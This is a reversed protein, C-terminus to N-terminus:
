VLARGQWVRGQGLEVRASLAGQERPQHQVLEQLNQQPARLGTGTNTATNDAARGAALGRHMAGHAAYRKSSATSSSSARTGSCSRSRTAARPGAGSHAASTAKTSPSPTAAARPSGAWATRPSGASARNGPCTWTSTTLARGPPANARPVPPHHPPADVSSWRM